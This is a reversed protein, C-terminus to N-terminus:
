ASPGTIQLMHKQARAKIYHSLAHRGDPITGSHYSFSFITALPEALVLSLKKLFFPPINDPGSSLKLPRTLLKRYVDFAIFKPFLCPFKIASSQFFPLVGNDVCFISQFKNNFVTAKDFDDLILNGQDDQLTGLNSSCKLKKNVFHWFPKSNKVSLIKSEVVAQDHRRSLRTKRNLEKVKSSRSGHKKVYRRRANIHFRTRKSVASKGLRQVSIPVYM